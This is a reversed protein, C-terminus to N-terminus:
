KIYVSRIKLWATGADCGSISLTVPSKSAKAALLSAKLNSATSLTTGAWGNNTPCEEMVSVKTSYAVDLKIAINNADDSFLETIIGSIGAASTMQSALLLSLATISKHM